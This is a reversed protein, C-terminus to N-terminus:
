PPGPFSPAKETSKGYGSGASLICFKKEEVTNMLRFLAENYMENCHMNTEPISNTFPVNSMGFADQLIM